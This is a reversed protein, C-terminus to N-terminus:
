RFHCVCFFAINEKYIFVKNETNKNLFIKRFAIQCQPLMKDKPDIEVTNYYFCINSNNKKLQKKKVKYSQMLFFSIHIRCFSKCTKTLPNYGCYGCKRKM